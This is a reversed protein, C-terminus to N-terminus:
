AHPVHSPQIIPCATVQSQFPPIATVCFRRRGVQYGALELTINPELPRHATAAAAAGGGGAPLGATTLGAAAGVATSAHAGAQWGAYSPSSPPRSPHDSFPQPLGTGGMSDNGARSRAPWAGMGGGAAFALAMVSACSGGATPARPSM